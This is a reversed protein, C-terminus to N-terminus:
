RAECWTRWMARYATEISRALAAPDALPSALYENRLRMRIAALKARDTGLAIAKAVYSQPENAIWEPHGVSTVLSAGVRAVHSEGALTVVPVGMRLAEM